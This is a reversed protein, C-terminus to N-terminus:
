FLNIMFPPEWGHRREHCFLAADLALPIDEIGGALGQALSGGSGSDQQTALVLGLVGGMSVAAIEHDNDVSLLGNESAFLTLLLKVAGVGAIHAPQLLGLVANEHLLLGLQGHAHGHAAHHGAVDDGLVRQAAQLDVAAALM